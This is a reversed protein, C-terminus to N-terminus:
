VVFSEGCGCQGKQNPNTYIFKKQLGQQVYDISLGKLYPYSNKDIGLTYNQDLKVMVDDNVFQEVFDMVYSLGSCGTKKVSLRMGALNEKENLCYLIRARASETLSITPISTSNYQKVESM